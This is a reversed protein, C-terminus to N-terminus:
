LEDAFKKAFAKLEEFSTKEPAKNLKMRFIMAGKRVMIFHFNPPNSIVFAEDGIESLRQVLLLPEDIKRYTSEFEQRAREVTPNQEQRELSFYLNIDKGSVKDKSIGRYTCEFKHVDGEIKSHNEILGVPQGIIKEADSPTLFKCPEPNAAFQTEVVNAQCSLFPASVFLCLVLLLNKIKKIGEM